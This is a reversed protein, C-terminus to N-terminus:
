EPTWSITNYCKSYSSAFGGALITMPSNILRVHACVMLFLGLMYWSTFFAWPGPFPDITLSTTTSNATTPEAQAVQALTELSWESISSTTSPYLVGDRGNWPMGRRIRTLFRSTPLMSFISSLNLSINYSLLSAPQALIMPIAPARAHEQVAADMRLSLRGGSRQCYPGPSLREANTLPPLLLPM